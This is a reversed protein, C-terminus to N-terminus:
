HDPTRAYFSTIQHLTLLLLPNIFISSHIFYELPIELKSLKSPKFACLQINKQFFDALIIKMIRFCFKYYQGM